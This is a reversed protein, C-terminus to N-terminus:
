PRKETPNPIRAEREDELFAGPDLEVAEKDKLVAVVRERAADLKQLALNLTKSSLEEVNRAKALATIHQDFEEYEFDFQLQESLKRLQYADSRYGGGELPKVLDFERYLDVLGAGQELLYAVKKPNSAADRAVRLYRWATTKSIELATLSEEWKGDGCQAKFVQLLRGCQIAHKIASAAHLLAAEHEARIKKILTATQIAKMTLIAEV